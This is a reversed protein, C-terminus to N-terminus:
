NQYISKQISITTFASYDKSNFFNGLSTETSNYHKTVVATWGQIGKFERLIFHVAATVAGAKVVNVQTTEAVAKNVNLLIYVTCVTGTYLKPSSPRNQRNNPPNFRPRLGLQPSISVCRACSHRRINGNFNLIYIYNLNHWKTNKRIVYYFLPFNNNEM